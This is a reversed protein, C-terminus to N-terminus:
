KIINKRWKDNISKIKDLSCKPKRDYTLIGNVEQEVDSLQTYCFGYIVDSAYVADVIREYDSVFEEETKAVTYGWGEPNSTDYAIGGFETLMIPEGANSFGNAYVKRGAPQSTLISERDKLSEIFYEYKEKEDQTGHNYNHVACIDTKTLEWGDNSIVLRSKDLSHTLYYMALSHSQQMKDRAVKPIGWSENLPVWAVICPHNYDRRIVEMWERTIRDVYMPSYEASNAMEGWVLFGLKDAWYLFRPDEVKQHKRCGNFGMEKALKIDIVFDEDKPATMLGEPWYGQDLVLKQYYPRNNLYVIGDETHIKRMGFYTEIEDLTNEGNFLIIKVDFLNPTEPSWCWGLHHNCTRFIKKNFIDISRSTYLELIDIVDKSVVNGQFSIELSAKLGEEIKSTEFEVNVSGADIDPTFRVYQINTPSIPELWVSQWIGTTRKYWINGPKEIWYQKGRPITEDESPDEVYLTVDEQGWVLYDTIDFSFSVHGGEHEGVLKENIFLKCKYDVAGFHLIVRKGKWDQPVEFKRKYWVIDHFKNENIGSLESQFVFPVNIVKSYTKDTSQWKDVLGIKTDDFQFNWEGNLNLWTERIFSPRPYEQRYM